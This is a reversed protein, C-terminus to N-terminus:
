GLWGQARREERKKERYEAGYAASNETYGHKIQYQRAYAAQRQIKAAEAPPLKACKEERKRAFTAARKAKAEPTQSKATLDNDVVKKRDAEIRKLGGDRAQKRRLDGLAKGKALHSASIKKCTSPHQRDSDGGKKLNYGHPEITRESAIISEELSNLKDSSVGSIVAYAQVNEWGYKRIAHLLLRGISKAAWEKHANSYLRWRDAMKVSQGVYRKGNPFILVYIGSQNNRKMPLVGGLVEGLLPNMLYTEKRLVGVCSTQASTEGKSALDGLAAEAKDGRIMRQDTSDGFLTGCEDFENEGEDSSVYPGITACHPFIASPLPSETVEFEDEEYDSPIMSEDMVEVNESRSSARLSPSSRTKAKRPAGKAISLACAAAPQRSFKCRAFLSDHWHHLLLDLRLHADVRCGGSGHLCERKGM